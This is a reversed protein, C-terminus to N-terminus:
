PHEKVWPLFYLATSPNSITLIKDKKELAASVQNTHYSYLESLFTLHIFIWPTRWDLIIWITKNKQVITFLNPCNTMPTRLILDWGTKMFLAQDTFSFPFLTLYQNCRKLFSIPFSITDLSISSFACFPGDSGFYPMEKSCSGPKLHQM